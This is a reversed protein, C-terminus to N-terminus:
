KCHPMGTGSYDCERNVSKCDAVTRWQGGICHQINDHNDCQYNNFECGVVSCKVEVLDVSMLYSCSTGGGCPRDNMWKYSGSKKQCKQIESGGNEDLGCRKLENKGQGCIDSEIVQQESVCLSEGNKVVCVGECTTEVFKNEVCEYLKESSACIKEGDKCIPEVCAGGDDDSCVRRGRCGDADVWYSGGVGENLMCTQRGGCHCRFSDTESCKTRCIKGAGTAICIEDAGCEGNKGCEVIKCQSDVFQGPEEPTSEKGMLVLMDSEDCSVVVLLLLVCLCTIELNRLFLEMMM